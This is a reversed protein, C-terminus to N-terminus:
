ILLRVTKILGIEPKVFAPNRFDLKEKCLQLVNSDLTDECNYSGCHDGSIEDLNSSSYSRHALFSALAVDDCSGCHDNDEPGFMEESVVHIDDGFCSVCVGAFSREIEIHGDQGTCLVNTGISPFVLAIFLASFRISSISLM